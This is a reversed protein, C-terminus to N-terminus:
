ILHFTELVYKGIKGHYKPEIYLETFRLKRATLGISTVNCFIYLKAMFILANFNTKKGM